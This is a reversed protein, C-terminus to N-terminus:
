PLSEMWAVAEKVEEERYGVMFSVRGAMMQTRAM